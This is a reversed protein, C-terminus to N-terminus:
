AAELAAIRATLADNRDALEQIAKLLMPALLSYKVGLHGADDVAEVMDPKVLEVEQAVLGIQKHRGFSSAETFNFHRVRLLRLEELQPTVDM